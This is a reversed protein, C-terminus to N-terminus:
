ERLGNKRLWQWSLLSAVADYGADHWTAGIGLDTLEKEAARKSMRRWATWSPFSGSHRAVRGLAFCVANLDASRRSFLGYTRPLADRVFPMDFTGVNWGVAILARKEATGGNELCWEYLRDDVEDARPAAHIEEPPIGHVEMAKPDAFYEGPAWGILSCFQEEPAVGVSAGIQVLKAGERIDAGTMEGDLGVFAIAM